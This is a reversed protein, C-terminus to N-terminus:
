GFSAAHGEEGDAVEEGDLGADVAGGGGIDEGEALAVGAM